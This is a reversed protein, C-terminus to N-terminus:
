SGAMDTNKNEQLLLKILLQEDNSYTDAFLIEHDWVSPHLNQMWRMFKFTGGSGYEFAGGFFIIFSTPIQM